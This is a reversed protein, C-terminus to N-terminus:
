QTPHFIDALISLERYYYAIIMLLVGFTPVWFKKTQTRIILFIGYVFLIVGFIFVADILFGIITGILDKYKKLPHTSM